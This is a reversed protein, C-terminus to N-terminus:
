AVTPEKREAKRAKTPSLSDRMMSFHDMPARTPEETEVASAPSTEPMTSSVTENLDRNTLDKVLAALLDNFDGDNSDNEGKNSVVSYEDIVTKESSKIDRKKPSFEFSSKMPEVLSTKRAAPAFNPSLKESTLDIKQKKLSRSSNLSSSPPLEDNHEDLVNKWTNKASEHESRRRKGLKVGTIPCPNARLHNLSTMVDDSQAKKVIPAQIQDDTM